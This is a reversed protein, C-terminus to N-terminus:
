SLVPPARSQQARVPGFPIAASAVDDKVLDVAIVVATSIVVAAATPAASPAVAFSCLSRAEHQSQGDDQARQGGGHCVVMSLGGGTAELMFGAPVLARLAFLPLLWWVVKSATRRNFPQNM